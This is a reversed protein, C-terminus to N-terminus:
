KQCLARREQEQESTLFIPESMGNEKCYLKIYEAQHITVCYGNWWRINDGISKKPIKVELYEPDFGLKGYLMNAVINSLKM